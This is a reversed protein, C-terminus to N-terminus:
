ATGSENLRSKTTKDISVHVNNMRVDGYGIMQARVIYTGPPIRLITYNGDADTAAGIATGELIINAGILPEGTSNDSIQGTIKGTTGAFLVHCVMLMGVLLVVPQFRNICSM